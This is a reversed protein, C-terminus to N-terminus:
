ACAEEVMVEVEPLRLQGSILRPLLTDRLQTLTRSQKSNSFIKDILPSCLEDFGILVQENPVLLKLEKVDSQNIGPIAAKGGRHKLEHMVADSWLWYYLFAQSFPEKLRIRFVHENIGCKKFPFGNGFMSVRPLFVGPKGGDKYLLVDHSQLEGSKMKEFFESSVYKTKSYDFEGIRVISEAGISPVGDMIGAVGGKPRRGTELVSLWSSARDVLWGRPVLGLESEEFSDPFLAATAADMGEPELGEAKARVPDFDVFWSKFLAQAIAELTANTERLLTIRDDIEVLLDAVEDQYNKSPTPVQVNVLDSGRIGSAGAGQEVIAEIVRRGDPSRFFYFYFNPNFRKQDLRCRILHSEFVTRTKNGLFISCQGAGSLVLSQRAFLLDGDKLFFQQEKEENIPVLDMELNKIRSHAFLEGMNVMPFGVGRVKKPRTLGNRQPELFLDGFRVSEFSM